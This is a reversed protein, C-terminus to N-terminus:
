YGNVLKKHCCLQMKLCQGWVDKWHIQYLNEYLNERTKGNIPNDCSRYWFVM